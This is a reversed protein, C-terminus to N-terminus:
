NSEKKRKMESGSLDNGGGSSDETWPELSQIDQGPRSPLRPTHSSVRSQTVPFRPLLRGFTPIPAPIVQVSDRPRDEILVVRRGHREEWGKWSSRLRESQDTGGFRSREGRRGASIGLQGNHALGAVGTEINELRCNPTPARRSDRSISHTQLPPFTVLNCDRMPNSKQGNATPM